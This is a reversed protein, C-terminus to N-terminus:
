KSSANNSKIISSLQKPYSDKLMAGQSIQVTNISYIQLYSGILFFLYITSAKCFITSYCNRCNELTGFEATNEMSLYNKPSIRKQQWIVM